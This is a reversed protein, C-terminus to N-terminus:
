MAATGHLRWANSIMAEFYADDDICASVNAYYEESEELTVRHDLLTKDTINHHLEFTELFEGLVEEETKKGARVDPHNKASYVDRIDEIDVIGSGDRDLKKFAQHVLSVRFGNMPGRVSRLFEDYDVEGSRDLDFAAFLSQAEQENINLRYDHCAKVFEPFDLTRSNNDDM